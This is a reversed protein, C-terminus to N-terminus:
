ISLTEFSTISCGSELHEVDRESIILTHLDSVLRDAHEEARQGVLQLHEAARNLYHDDATGRQGGEAEDPAGGPVYVEERYGLVAFQAQSFAPGASRSPRPSGSPNM